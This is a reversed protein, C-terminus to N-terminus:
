AKRWDKIKEYVVYVAEDQKNCYLYCIPYNKILYDVIVVSKELTEKNDSRYIQGFLYDWKENNEMEVVNNDDAQKLCFICGLNASINNGIGEKGNWPNSYVVINDDVKKLFPKDDNIMITDPFLKCWLKGHTTKGVGSVGTFIYAYEDVILSSGHLLVTDHKLSLIESVKRLLAFRESIILDNIAYGYYREYAQEEYDIDQKTINIEHLYEEGIFDSCFNELEDFYPNILFGVDAVKLIFSKM